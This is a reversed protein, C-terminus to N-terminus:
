LLYSDSKGMSDMIAYDSEQAWIMCSIYKIREVVRGLFQSESCTLALIQFRVRLGHM